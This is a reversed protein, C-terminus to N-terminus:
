AINGAMSGVAVDIASGTIHRAEDSLLFLASDSVDSPEVWPAGQPTV